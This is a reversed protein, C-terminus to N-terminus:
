VAGAARGVGAWTVTVAVDIASGEIDDDATTVTTKGTATLMEGVEAVTFAPRCCCNVAVTEFVVLVETVQLTLPAPQLPAAQPTTDDM